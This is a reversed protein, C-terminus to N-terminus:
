GYNKGEEACRSFVQSVILDISDLILSYTFSLLSFLHMFAISCINVNYPTVIDSPRPWVPIRRIINPVFGIRGDLHVIIELFPMLM